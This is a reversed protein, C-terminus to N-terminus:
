NSLSAFAVAFKTAPKMKGSNKYRWRRPMKTAGFGTM